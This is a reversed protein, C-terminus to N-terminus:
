VTDDSLGPNALISAPPASPDTWDPATDLACTCTMVCASYAFHEISALSDRRHCHECASQWCVRRQAGAAPYQCCRLGAEAPSSEGRCGGAFACWRASHPDHRRNGSCGAKLNQLTLVDALLRPQSTSGGAGGEESNSM